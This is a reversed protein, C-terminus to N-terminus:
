ARRDVLTGTRLPIQTNQRYADLPSKTFHGTQPSASRAQSGLIHAKLPKGQPEMRRGGPRSTANYSPAANLMPAGSYRREQEARM